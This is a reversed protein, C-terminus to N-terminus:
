LETKMTADDSSTSLQKKMDKQLEKLLDDFPIDGPRRFFREGMKIEYAEPQSLVFENFEFINQANQLTFMVTTIDFGMFTVGIAGTRALQTWKYAIDSVMDPTRHYDLQLKVFGYSMGVQRKMVEDQMQSLDLNSFNDPPPDFETETMRKKQGWEIWEEDEENDQVDDLDDPIHVRKKTGIVGCQKMNSKFKM